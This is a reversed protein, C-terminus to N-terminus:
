IRSKYRTTTKVGKKYVTEILNGLEDVRVQQVPKNNLDNRLAKIEGVLISNDFIIKQEKSESNELLNGTRFNYALGALDENSMGGIMSNQAKTLIRENDHILALRGGQNDLPNAVTGTDETGEYFSGGTAIVKAVSLAAGTTARGIEARKLQDSKDQDAKIDSIQREANILIEGIALTKQAALLTKQLDKNKGAAIQAVNTVNNISAIRADQIAREEALFEKQRALSDALRKRELAALDNALQQEIVEIEEATLKETQIRFDAADELKRKELEFISDLSEETQREVAKLREIEGELQLQELENISSQQLTVRELIAENLDKEADSLDQLVFKRERFIELVRGQTVDDLEALRVRNRVQEEDDLSLLENIDLRDGAFDELLKKQNEFSSDALRQFDQFAKGREELTKTDDAIIRENVTKVADFADIAFDLEREFRDRQVERLERQNEIQAVTLENQAEQLEITKESRQNLLDLVNAGEGRAEIEQNIIDLEEQALKVVLGAREVQLDSSRRVAEEIENFGRTSDGAIAQQRELEGSVKALEERTGRSTKEFQIQSEAVEAQAKGAEVLRDISGELSQTGAKTAIGISEFFTFGAEQARNFADVNAIAFSAVTNKVSNFAGELFGSAKRLDESGEENAELSGKIGDFSAKAGAAAGALILLRKEVGELAKEYRGVDRRGDKAADNIERLESDLRDFEKRLAKAEKSNVGFEAALRKFERQARNTRNTLEKFADAEELVAKQSANLEKSAAKILVNLEARQKNAEKATVLGDKEARNLSARQKRLGDLNAQLGELNGSEVKIRENIEKQLKSQTEQIKLLEERTKNSKRLADNADKISKADFVDKRSQKLIDEQADLLDKFSSEVDSLKKILDDANKITPDFVGKVIVDESKIPQSDAM